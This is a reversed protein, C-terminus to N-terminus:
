ILLERLNYLYILYNSTQFDYIHWFVDAKAELNVKSGNKRELEYM